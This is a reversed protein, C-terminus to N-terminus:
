RFNDYDMGYTVAQKNEYINNNNVRKKASDVNSYRNEDDISKYMEQKTQEVSM